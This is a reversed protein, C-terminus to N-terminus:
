EDDQPWHELDDIAEAVDGTPECGYVELCASRFAITPAHAQRLVAYRSRFQGVLLREEPALEEPACHQDFDDPLPGVVALFPHLINDAVWAYSATQRATTLVAAIDDLIEDRTARTGVARVQGDIHSKEGGWMDTPWVQSRRNDRCVYCSILIFLKALWRRQVPDASVTDLATLVRGPVGDTRNPKAPVGRSVRSRRDLEAVQSSVVRRAYALRVEVPMATQQERQVLRQHTALYVEHMVGLCGDDWCREDLREAYPDATSYPVNRSPCRSLGSAAHQRQRPTRTGWWVIQALDRDLSQTAM